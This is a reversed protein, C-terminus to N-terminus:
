SGIENRRMSRVIAITVVVVLIVGLTFFLVWYGAGMIFTDPNQCTGRLPDQTCIINDDICDQYLDEAFNGLCKLGSGCDVIHGDIIIEVRGEEYDYDSKFYKVSCSEGERTATASNRTSCVNNLCQLGDPCGDPQFNGRIKVYEVGDFIKCELASIAFAMSLFLIVIKFM